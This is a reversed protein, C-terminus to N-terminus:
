KTFVESILAEESETISNDITMISLGLILASMQTDTDMKKIMDRVQSKFEANDGKTAIQEFQAESFNVGFTKNFLEREQSNCVSDASSFLKVLSFFIDGVEIETMNMKDGYAQIEKVAEKAYMIKQEKRMGNILNITDKLAM